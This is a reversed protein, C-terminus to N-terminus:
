SGLASGSRWIAKSDCRTFLLLLFQADVPFRVRVEHKSPVFELWQVISAYLSYNYAGVAPISGAVVHNLTMREVMQALRAENM